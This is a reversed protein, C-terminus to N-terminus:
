FWSVSEAFDWREGDDNGDGDEEEEDYEEEEAWEPVFGGASEYEAQTFPGFSWGNATHEPGCALWWQLCNACRCTYPHNSAEMVSDRIGAKYALDAVLQQLETM